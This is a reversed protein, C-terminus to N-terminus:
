YLDRIFAEECLGLAACVRIAPMLSFVIQYVRKNAMFASLSNYFIYFVYIM